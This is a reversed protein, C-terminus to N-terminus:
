QRNLYAIPSLTGMLMEQLKHLAQILRSPEELLAIITYVDQVFLRRVQRAATTVTKHLALIESLSVIESLSGNGSEM